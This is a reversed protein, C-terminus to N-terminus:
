KGPVFGHTEREAQGPKERDQSKTKQHANGTGGNHFVVANATLPNTVKEDENGQAGVCDYAQQTSCRVHLFLSRVWLEEIHDKRSSLILHHGTVCLTGKIPMQNAQYLTVGDVQATRIFESFEM